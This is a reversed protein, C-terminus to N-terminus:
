LSRPNEFYCIKFGNLAVNELCFRNKKKKEKLSHRKVKRAPKLIQCKALFVLDTSLVPMSISIRLSNNDKFVRFQIGCDFTCGAGICVHSSAWFERKREKQM